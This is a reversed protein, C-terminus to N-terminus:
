VITIAAHEWRLLAASFDLVHRVIEGKLAAPHNVHRNIRRRTDSVRSDNLRAARPGVDAPMLYPQSEVQPLNQWIRDIVRKQFPRFRTRTVGAGLQASSRYGGPTR